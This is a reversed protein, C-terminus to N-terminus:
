DTDSRWRSDCVTAARIDSDVDVRVQGGVAAYRAKIIALAIGSHLRPSYAQSTVVGINDGADNLVPWVSRMSSLPTGEIMLNVLRKEPGSTAIRQLADCSMYEAEKDLDIYRELGSEFPNSEITM